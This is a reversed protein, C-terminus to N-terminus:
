FVVYTGGKLLRAKLGTTYSADVTTLDTVLFLGGFFADVSTRVEGFEGVTQTSTSSFTINGASDTQCAMPLICEAVQSGDSNGSAYPAYNGPTATVPGLVQGKPYNTSAKLTIPLLFAKPNPLWSNAQNPDWTAVAVDQAM